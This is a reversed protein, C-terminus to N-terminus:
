QMWSPKRWCECPIQGVEVGNVRISKVRRANDWRVQFEGKSEYINLLLPLACKVELSKREIDAEQSREYEGIYQGDYYVSLRNLKKGIVESDIRLSM